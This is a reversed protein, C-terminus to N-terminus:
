LFLQASVNRFPMLLRLSISLSTYTIEYRSRVKADPVECSALRVAGCEHHLSNSAHHVRMFSRMTGGCAGVVLCRSAAKTRQSVAVANGRRTPSEDNDKSSSLRGRLPQDEQIIDPEDQRGQRSQSIHANPNKLDTTAFEKQGWPPSKSAGSVACCPQDTPQRAQGPQRARVRVIPALRRRAASKSSVPVRSGRPTERAPVAQLSEEAPEGL